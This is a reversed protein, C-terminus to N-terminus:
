NVSCLYYNKKGKQILIYRNNILFTSNVTAEINSVKEKNISVGGGQIMKRAEGKSPFVKTKEALFDIVGVGGIIEDMSIEFQPVGEFVDLFTSEDLNSLDSLSGDFLVKSTEI